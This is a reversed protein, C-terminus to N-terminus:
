KKTNCMKLNPLNKILIIKLFMQMIRNTLMKAPFKVFSISMVKFLSMKLKHHTCSTPLLRIEAEIQKKNWPLGVGYECNILRDFYQKIVQLGGNLDIQGNHIDLLIVGSAIM